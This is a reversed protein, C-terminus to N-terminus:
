KHEYITTWVVETARWAFGKSTGVLAAKRVL